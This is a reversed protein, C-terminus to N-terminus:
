YYKDVHKIFLSSTPVKLAYPDFLCILSWKHNAIGENSANLQTHLFRCVDCIVTM